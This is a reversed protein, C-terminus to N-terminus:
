SDDDRRDCPTRTTAFMNRREAPQLNWSKKIIKKLPRRVDDLAKLPPIVPLVQEIPLPPEIKMKKDLNEAMGMETGGSMCSCVETNGLTHLFQMIASLDNQRYFLRIEEAISGQEKQLEEIKESYMKTHFILNEYCDFIYNRFRNFRTWGRFRQCEFVRTAITPSEILYPDYFLRENLAILNLFAQILEEDKLLVYIRILDFSIRKQLIFSYQKIKDDLELKDEEILKRFGFYRDAMDARIEDAMRDEFSIARPM